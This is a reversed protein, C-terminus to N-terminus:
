IICFQAVILLIWPYLYGIVSYESIDKPKFIRYTFVSVSIACLIAALIKM